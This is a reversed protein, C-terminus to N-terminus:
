ELFRSVRSVIRNSTASASRAPSRSRVSAINPPSCMLVVSSRATSCTASRSGPLLPRSTSPCSTRCSTWSTRSRIASKASRTRLPAHVPCVPSRIRATTLMPM